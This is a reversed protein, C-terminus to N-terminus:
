RRLRARLIAFIAELTRAETGGRERSMRDLVGENRLLALGHVESWALLSLAGADASAPMTGEKQCRRIMNDLVAFSDYEDGHVEKGSLRTVAAAMAEASFMVRLYDANQRAFELYARGMALYKDAATGKCRESATLIARRLRKHGELMLTVLLQDKNEFHRYPAARSVGARVALKRLSFGRLGEEEILRVAHELLAQKLDPHHYRRKSPMPGNKVKINVDDVYHPQM